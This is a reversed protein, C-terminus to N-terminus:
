ASPVRGHWPRAPWALDLRAALHEVLLQLFQEAAAGLARRSPYIAYITAAPPEWRECIHVLRGSDIDSRCTALPLAGIGLGRQVAEILASLQTTSFRPEFCVDRSMGDRSLRWQWKSARPGFGLCDYQSLLEPDGPVASAGLVQPRSVLVYPHSCIRRAVVDLNPLPEFAGHIVLDASAETPDVYISSEELHLRLGPAASAFEAALSEIVLTGILPPCIVRLSGTPAAHSRDALEFVRECEQAARACQAYCERGFATLAFQRQGRHLLPVGLHSELAAVQRALTSKPIGERRAAASVGGCEVVLTFARIEDYHVRM